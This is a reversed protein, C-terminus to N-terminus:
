MNLRKMIEQRLNSLQDKNSLDLLKFQRSTKYKQYFEYYLIAVYGWVPIMFIFIWFQWTGVIIAIILWILAYVLFSGMGVAVKVPAKFELQKIKEEGIKNALWLPIGNLVLGLIFPIFGVMLILTKSFTNWKSNRVAFDDTKHQNLKEFYTNTKFALSAKESEELQNVFNAVKQEAHLRSEQGRKLIPLISSPHEQRIMILLQEVLPEDEVKDICIIREKLRAEVEKTITRVAKKEHEHYQELYDRMRIPEGFDIMVESRFRDAYTYNVGAPVIYIDVEEGYKQWTGFAMRVAGKQIPRLRKEQKTNGEVLIHILAGESLKKYCYDLTDFNNKLNSYGDVFRFIPIMNFDLLIKRALPKKFLDGRVIFHLDKSINTAIICPEIFATPHNTALLIPKDLPLHHTNTFYIKRFFTKLAIRAVPRFIHYLM